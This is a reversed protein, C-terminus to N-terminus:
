PGLGNEDIKNITVTATKAHAATSALLLALRLCRKMPVSWQLGSGQRSGRSVLVPLLSANRKACRRAEALRRRVSGPPKGHELRWREWYAEWGKRCRAHGEPTKPGTSGAGHNWCRGSPPRAKAICPRGASRAWAGCKEHLAHGGRKRLRYIGMALLERAIEPNEHIEKLAAELVRDKRPM